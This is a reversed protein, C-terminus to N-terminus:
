TISHVMHLAYWGVLESVLALYCSREWVSPCILRSARLWGKVREESGKPIQECRIAPRKRLATPSVAKVPFVVSRPATCAPLASRKMAGVPRVASGHQALKHVARELMAHLTLSSSLFICFDIDDYQLLRAIACAAITM